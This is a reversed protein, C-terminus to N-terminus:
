PVAGHSLKECRIGCKMIMALEPLLLLMNKQLKIMAEPFSYVSGEEPPHRSRVFDSEETEWGKRDKRGQQPFLIPLTRRLRISCLLAVFIRGRFVGEKHGKRGQQSFHM